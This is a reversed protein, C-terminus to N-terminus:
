PLLPADLEAVEAAQRERLAEFEATVQARLRLLSMGPRLNALGRDVLEVAKDARVMHLNGFRGHEQLWRKRTLQIAGGGRRVRVQVFHASVFPKM